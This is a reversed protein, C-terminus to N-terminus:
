GAPAPEVRLFAELDRAVEEPRSMYADLEGWLILTPIRQGDTRCQPDVRVSM